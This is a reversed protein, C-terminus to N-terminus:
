QKVLVYIQKRNKLYKNSNELDNASSHWSLSFPAKSSLSRRNRWRDPSAAPCTSASLATVLTILYNNRREFM